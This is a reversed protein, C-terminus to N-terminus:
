KEMLVVSLLRRVSQGVRAYATVYQIRSWTWFAKCNMYAIRFTQEKRAKSEVYMRIQFLCIIYKPSKHLHLHLLYKLNEHDYIEVNYAGM